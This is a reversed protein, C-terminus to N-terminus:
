NVKKEIEAVKTKLTDIEAILDRPPPPIVIPRAIGTVLKGKVVTNSDSAMFASIIPQDAVEICAYDKPIGGLPTGEFTPFLADIKVSPLANLEEEITKPFVGDGELSSSWVIQSNSKKYFVRVAKM